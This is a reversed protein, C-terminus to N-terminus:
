NEEGLAARFQDLADRCDAVVQEPTPPVRDRRRPVVVLPDGYKRFRKYHRNCYSRTKHPAECGPVSCPAPTTM